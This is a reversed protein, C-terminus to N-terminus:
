LKLVDNIIRVTFQADPDNPILERICFSAQTLAMHQRKNLSDINAIQTTGCEKCRDGLLHLAFNVTDERSWNRMIHARMPVVDYLLTGIKEAAAYIDKETVQEHRKGATEYIIKAIQDIM